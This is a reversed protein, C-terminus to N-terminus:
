KPTREKEATRSKEQALTKGSLEGARNGVRAAAGDAVGIDLDDIALRLLEAGRLTGAIAAENEGFQQRAIKREGYVARTELFELLSAHPNGSGFADDKRRDNQFDACYRLCYGNGALDSSNL